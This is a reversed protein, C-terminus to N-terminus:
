FGVILKGGQPGVQPETPLQSQYRRLLELVGRAKDHLDAPQEPRPSLLDFPPVPRGLITYGLGPFPPTFSWTDHPTDCCSCGWSCSRCCPNENNHRSAKARAAPFLRLGVPRRGTGGPSFVIVATGPGGGPAGPIPRMSFRGAGELLYHRVDPRPM